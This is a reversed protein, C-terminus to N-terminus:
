SRVTPRRSVPSGLSVKMSQGESTDRQELMTGEPARAILTLFTQRRKWETLLRLAGSVALAALAMAAAQWSIVSATATLGAWAGTRSARMLMM